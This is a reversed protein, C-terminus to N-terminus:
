PVVEWQVDCQTQETHLLSRLTLTQTGDSQHAITPQWASRDFTFKLRQGSLNRFVVVEGFRIPPGSYHLM